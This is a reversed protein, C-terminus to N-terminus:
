RSNKVNLMHSGTFPGRPKLEGGFDNSSSQMAAQLLRPPAFARDPVSLAPAGLVCHALTGDDPAAGKFFGQNNQEVSLPTNQTATLM